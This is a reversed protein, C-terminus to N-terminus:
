QAGTFLESAGFQKRDIEGLGLARAKQEIRALGVVINRVSGGSKDHLVSILDPKVTVECLQSALLQADEADAPEFRVNQALRGLLQKRHRLRDEIKDMGVLVVPVLSIDHIDRLTETLKMSSVLYDAEDIFLPRGTRGLEEVIDETMLSCSGRPSRRLERLIATLMASPTWTALARVYVGNKKNNMWAIATTKGFGSHGHVLGMGPAGPARTMLAETATALRTINKVPLTKSKM